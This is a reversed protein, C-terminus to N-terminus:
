ARGGVRRKKRKNSAVISTALIRLAEAESVGIAQNLRRAIAEAEDQPREGYESVPRYGDEGELVVIVQWTTMSTTVVTAYAAKKGNIINLVQQSGM